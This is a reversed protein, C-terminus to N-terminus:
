CHDLSPTDLLNPVIDWNWCDALTLNMHLSPFIVASISSIKCVAQQSLSRLFSFLYSQCLQKLLTCSTRSSSSWSPLGEVETFAAAMYKGSRAGQSKQSKGLSFILSWTLNKLLWFVDFVNHWGAQEDYWLLCAMLVELCQPIYTHTNRVHM